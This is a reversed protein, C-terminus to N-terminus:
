WITSTWGSIVSDNKDAALRPAAGHYRRCRFWDFASVTIDAKVVVIESRPLAALRTTSFGAVGTAPLFGADYCLDVLFM